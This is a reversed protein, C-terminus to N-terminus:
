CSAAIRLLDSFLGYATQRLGPDKEFLALEGMLDTQLLLVNSTGTATGFLTNLGVREPAVLAEVGGATRTSRAILRIAFGERHADALQASNIGRIGTTSVDAPKLNSGMLVNALAVTKMTADLGDIDFDPNAEAVGLQQAKELAEGFDLGSEMSSLILNTTSNLIGEFGIVEVGPLCDDVLNFVPAGDMVASEFRFVVGFRSALARLEKHAFAVPGKNATVVHMRRALAGRIYSIAPEGDTANLPSTEFLVDANCREILQFPESHSVVGPLESLSGGREVLRAADILEIGRDCTVCGHNATAIATTTLEISRRGLELRREELIRALERAVNGLGAFALRLKM